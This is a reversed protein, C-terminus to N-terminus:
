KVGKRSLGSLPMGIIYKWLKIIPFILNKTHKELVTESYFGFRDLSEALYGDKYITLIEFDGYKNKVRFKM